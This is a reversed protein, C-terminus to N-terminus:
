KQVKLNVRKGRCANLIKQFEDGLVKRQYVYEKDQPGTDHQLSRFAADLLKEVLPTNM